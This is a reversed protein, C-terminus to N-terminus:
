KKNKSLPRHDKTTISWVFSSDSPSSLECVLRMMLIISLGPRPEGSIDRLRDSGPPLTLAPVYEILKCISKSVSSSAIVSCRCGGGDDDDCGVLMFVDNRDLTNAFYECLNGTSFFTCSRRSRTGRRTLIANTKKQNQQFITKSNANTITNTVFCDVGSAVAIDSEVVVEM